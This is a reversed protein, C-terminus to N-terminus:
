PVTTSVEYFRLQALKLGNNDYNWFYDQLADSFLPYREPTGDGDLDVYLYLLDKTANMFWSKGTDRVLVMSYVSCWEQDSSDYACTTTESMNGPKGLARAWVSYQTEGSNTPDPNPLQFSATGDTGNADLVQFDNGEYLLIKTNGWLKVFIRHGSDNAFDGTKTKPVGILNLNYHPGSPAGNGTVATDAHALGPAALALVLALGVMAFVTRKM